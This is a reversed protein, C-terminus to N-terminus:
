KMLTACDAYGKARAMAAPSIKDKNKTAPSAKADLLAKVVAANGGAVAYHLATSGLKDTADVKAGAALLVKVKELAGKEAAIMLATEGYKSSSDVANAAAAGGKALVPKLGCEGSVSEVHTGFSLCLSIVEAM